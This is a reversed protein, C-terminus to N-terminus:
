HAGENQDPAADIVVHHAAEGAGAAAGGAHPYDNCVHTAHGFFAVCQEFTPDGRGKLETAVYAAVEKIERPQLFHEAAPPMTKSNLDGQKYGYCSNTAYADQQFYPMGGMPHGCRVTEAIQSPDLQTKRLNAASGGYGGGGTGSWKHCSICGAERFISAGEAASAQPQQAFAAPPPCLVLGCLASVLGASRLMM